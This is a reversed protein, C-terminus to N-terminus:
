RYHKEKFVKDYFRDTYCDYIKEKKLVDVLNERFFNSYNKVVRSIEEKIDKGHLSISFYDSPLNPQTEEAFQSISMFANPDSIFCSVLNDIVPRQKEDPFAITQGNIIDTSYDISLLTDGNKYRLNCYYDLFIETRGIGINQLVYDFDALFSFYKDIEQQFHKLRDSIDPTIEKIDAM